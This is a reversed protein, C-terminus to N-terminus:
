NILGANLIFLITVNNGIQTHDYITVNPHIICNNGIIVHNGVFVGPMIVTNTGIKATPSVNVNSYELPRFHRVLKNYATFPEHHLLLVKGEPCEVQQNIIIATATSSLANKFYKPHDVFILDGENVRHIENLGSILKSDDGIIEAGVLRALEKASTKEIKMGGRHFM